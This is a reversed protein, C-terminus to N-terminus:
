VLNLLWCHCQWSCCRSAGLSTLQDPAAMLLHQAQGTSLAWSECHVATWSSCNLAMVLSTWCFDYEGGNPAIFISLAPAPKEWGMCHRQSFVGLSGSGNHIKIEWVLRLEPLHALSCFHHSVQRTNLLDKQNLCGMIRATLDTPLAKLNSSTVQLPM